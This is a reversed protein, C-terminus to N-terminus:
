SCTLLTEGGEGQCSRPGLQSDARATTGSVLTSTSVARKAPGAEAPAQGGRSCCSTSRSGWEATTRSSSGLGGQLEHGPRCPLWPHAPPCPALRTALLQPCQSQESLVRGARDRSSGLQKEAAGLKKREMTLAAGLGAGGGFVAWLSFPPASVWVPARARPPLLIRELWAALESLVSFGPSGTCHHGM